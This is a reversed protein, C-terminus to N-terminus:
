LHIQKKSDIGQQCNAYLYITIVTQNILLVDKIIVYNSSQLSFDYMEKKTQKQYRHNM